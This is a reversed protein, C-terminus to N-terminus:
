FTLLMLLYVKLDVNRDHGADDVAKIHVFGFTCDTTAFTHVAVRGKSELDTHYDGSAGPARVIEMGISMGLGAIIATPAIMFPKMGHRQEFAEVDIRVGCGRLLVCNAVPKGVKARQANIEHSMLAKHLEASLENVLRATFVAAASESTPKCDLLPLQDKLPDTGTIDDSLGPGRVRVACRHETAYKVAVSYGPFSPLTLGDLAACLLPGIAEFDRDARRSVVIGTSADYTAFNSKFAIDGVQMELGSGMSEFCGRGRYYKRPDYGFISMHATDSGCGLGPQVPDLLGNVGTSALMDM